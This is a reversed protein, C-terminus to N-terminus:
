GGEGGGAEQAFPLLEQGGMYPRLVAPVEVGRGERHYNELVAALCRGVAVGSGNLTHLYQPKGGGEPRFRVAARRAQFDGCNSCSSIERWAGGDKAAGPLWVELDFTRNAAFGLDGACLDLVRYPLRLLQLVREAHGLMERLAAGSQEPHCFQVMEVKEFQHLRVLGRTDKGAAGAERRYCPTLATLRQPLQGEDLISDRWVNLLAMESTSILVMPREEGDAGKGTGRVQFIDEAFKPLQGSGEAAEWTLLHPVTWETYGHEALHLDLMWAGLARHLRALEGSLLVFRSGSMAVGREAHFGGLAEGIEVHHPAAGAKTPAFDEAAEKGEADYTHLVVNDAEGAGDPTEDSPINPVAKPPVMDEWDILPGSHLADYAKECLVKQMRCERAIEMMAEGLLAEWFDPKWGATEEQMRGWNVHFEEGHDDEWVGHDLTARTVLARKFVDYEGRLSKPLLDALDLWSEAREFEAEWETDWVYDSVEMADQSRRMQPKGISLMEPPSILKGVMEPAGATAQHIPAWYFRAESLAVMADWALSWALQGAEAREDPEPPKGKWKGVQKSIKNRAADLGEVQKSPFSWYELMKPLQKEFDAYDGGRRALRRGAEEPNRRLYRMDLM